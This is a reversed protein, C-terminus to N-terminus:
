PSTGVYLAARTKACFPGLNPVRFPNRNPTLSISIKDWISILIVRGTSFAGVKRGPRHNM